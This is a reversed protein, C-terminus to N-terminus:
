SRDHARDSVLWKGVIEYQTYPRGYSQETGGAPTRISCILRCENCFGLQDQASNYRMQSTPSQHTRTSLCWVSNM